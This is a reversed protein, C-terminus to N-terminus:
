KSASAATIGKGYHHFQQIFVRVASAATSATFTGYIHKTVNKEKV